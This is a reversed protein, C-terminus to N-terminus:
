GVLFIMIIQSINEVRLRLGDGLGITLIENSLKNSRLIFIGLCEDSLDLILSDSKHTECSINVELKEM